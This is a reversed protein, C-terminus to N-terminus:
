RHGNKDTAPAHQECDNNSIVVDGQVGAVTPSCPGETHQDIVTHIQVPQSRAAPMSSSRTLFLAIFGMLTVGFSLFVILRLFGLTQKNNLRSFFNWRGLTWLVDVFFHIAAAVATVERSAHMWTDIVM